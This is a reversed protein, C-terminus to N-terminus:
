EVLPECYVKPVIKDRMVAKGNFHRSINQIIDNYNDKVTENGKNDTEKIKYYFPKISVCNKHEFLTNLLVRDSIGCSHGFLFLQYEDKDIFKFLNNYNSTEMYKYSKLNELYENKNINVIKEYNDDMEDGYGFIIPNEEFNNLEGHIHISEININKFDDSSFFSDFILHEINSYYNETSTYNFNLFLINEPKIRDEQGLKTTLQFDRLNFNSYIIKGINRILFIDNKKLRLFEKKLYEVLYKKIKDFDANLSQIDKYAYNRNHDSESIYDPYVIQKLSDYYEMEIDVWNIEKKRKNSEKDDQNYLVETIKGLFKNKFIINSKGYQNTVVKKLKEYNDIIELINYLPDIKIDNDNYVRNQYDGLSKSREIILKIKGKWLDDIFDKYRTELGHALDFGNGILIIRNM